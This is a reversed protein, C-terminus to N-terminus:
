MSGVRIASISARQRPSRSHRTDQFISAHPDRSGLVNSIKPSALQHEYNQMMGALNAGIDMGAIIGSADQGHPGLLPVVVEEFAEM